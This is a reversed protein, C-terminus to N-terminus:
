CFFRFFVISHSITHTALSGCQLKYQKTRSHKNIPGTILLRFSHLNQFTSYVELAVQRIIHLLRSHLKGTEFERALFLILIDPLKFRLTILVINLCDLFLYSKHLYSLKTYISFTLETVQSEPSTLLYVVHQCGFKCTKKLYISFTKEILFLFRNFMLKQITLPKSVIKNKIANNLNKQLNVRKQIQLNNNYGSILNNL